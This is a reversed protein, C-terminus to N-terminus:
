TGAGVAHPWTSRHQGTLTEYLLLLRENREDLEARLSEILNAAEHAEANEFPSHMRLRSVIDVHETSVPDSM